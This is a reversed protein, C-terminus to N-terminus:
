RVESARWRVVSPWSWCRQQRYELTALYNLAKDYRLCIEIRPCPWQINTYSGYAMNKVIKWIDDEDRMALFGVERACSKAWRATYKSANSADMVVKGIHKVSGRKRNSRRARMLQLQCQALLYTPVNINCHFFIASTECVSPMIQM